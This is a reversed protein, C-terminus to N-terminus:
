RSPRQASGRPQRLARHLARDRHLHIVDPRGSSSGAFFQTWSAVQLDFADEDLDLIIRDPVGAKDEFSAPMPVPAAMADGGDRWQSQAATYDLSECSVGEFFRRASSNDASTGISGSFVTPRWRTEALSRCLYRAVQASGGRPFFYFGMAVDLDGHSLM